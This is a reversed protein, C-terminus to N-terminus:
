EAATGKWRLGVLPTFNQTGHVVPDGAATVLKADGRRDYYRVRYELRLVLDFRDDLPVAAGFNALYAVTPLTRLSTSTDGGALARLLVAAAIHPLNAPCLPRLPDSQGKFEPGATEEAGAQSTAAGFGHAESRSPSSALSGSRPKGTRCRAVAGYQAELQARSPRRVDTHGARSFARSATKAMAM